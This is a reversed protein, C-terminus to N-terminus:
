GWNSLVILLDSVDVSGSHDLDAPCDGPEPPVPCPGWASFLALLDSVNVVGDGNIDGILPRTYWTILVNDNEVPEFGYGVIAFGRDGDIAIDVPRNHNGGPNISDTRSFLLDGASTWAVVAFRSSSVMVNAFGVVLVSGVPDIAVAVGLDVGNSPGDWTRVWMDGSPDVRIAGVDFSAGALAIGSMAVAGDPSLAFDTPEFSSCGESPWNATWVRKGRSDIKWVRVEFLGCATEPGGGVLVNGDADVGMWAPTFVSGIPGNEHDSWLVSGDGDFAVTRYGGFLGNQPGAVVFGGGPLPAVATARDAGGQSADFTHTDILAGDSLTYRVVLFDDNDAAAVLVEGTISDEALSPGFGEPTVHSSVTYAEHWVVDGNAANVRRTFVTSNIARGTIFVDGTASTIMNTARLPQATEVTSWLVKGQQDYCILALHTGIPPLHTDAAVVVSGDPLVCAAIATDSHNAPGNWSDTWALVPLHDAHAAAAIVMGLAAALVRSRCLTLSM